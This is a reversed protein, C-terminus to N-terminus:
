KKVPTNKTKPATPSASQMRIAKAIAARAPTMAGMKTPEPTPNKPKAKVIPKVPTKVAPKAAAKPAPKAAPKPTTKVLTPKKTPPM